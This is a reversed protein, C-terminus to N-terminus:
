HVIKLDLLVLCSFDKEVFCINKRSLHEQSRLISADLDFAVCAGIRKKNESAECDSDGHYRLSAM